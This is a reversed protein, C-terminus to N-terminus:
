NGSCAAKDEENILKASPAFSDIETPVRKPKLTANNPNIAESYLPNDTRWPSDSALVGEEDSLNGWERWSGDYMKAPWGLIGDLALFSV